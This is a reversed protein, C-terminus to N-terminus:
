GAGEDRAALWSGLTQEDVGLQEATRGRHGGLRELAWAAYRRVLEDASIIQGEFVPGPPAAGSRGKLATRLALAERRLAAEELGRELFVALEEHRFPKTLYHYAGRRILEIAADVAGFATMVLVPRGPDLRQSAALVTLGDGDPMRLDTVVADFADRALFEIAQRGSGAAVAQYGRDSLTDCLTRAMELHDDVILVRRGSRASMEVRM